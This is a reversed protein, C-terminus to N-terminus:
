SVSIQVADRSNVPTRYEHLTPKLEPWDYERRSNWTAVDVERASPEATREMMKALGSTRVKQGATPPPANIWNLPTRSSLHLGLIAGPLVPSHDNAYLDIFFRHLSSTGDTQDFLLMDQYNKPRHSCPPPFLPESKHFINDSTWLRFSRLRELWLREHM